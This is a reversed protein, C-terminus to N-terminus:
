CSNVNVSISISISIGISIGISISVYLLILFEFYRYVKISTFLFPAWTLSLFFFFRKEFFIIPHSFKQCLTRKVEYIIFLM